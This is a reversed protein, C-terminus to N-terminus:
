SAGAWVSIVIATGVMLPLLVEVTDRVRGVLRREPHGGLERGGIAVLGAVVFASAVAVVGVSVAGPVSSDGFALVDIAVALVHGGEAGRDAM